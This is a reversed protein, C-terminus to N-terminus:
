DRTGLGECWREYVHDAVEHLAQVRPELDQLIAEVSQVAPSDSRAIERAGSECWARVLEETM